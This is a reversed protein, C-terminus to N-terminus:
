QENLWYNPDTGAIWYWAGMIPVAIKLAVVKAWHNPLDERTTHIEKMRTIDKWAIPDPELIHGVWRAKMVTTDHQSLCEGCFIKDDEGVVHCAYVCNHRDDLSGCSQCTGLLCFLSRSIIKM